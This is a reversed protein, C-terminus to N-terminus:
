RHGIAEHRRTGNARLAEDLARAIALHGAATPHDDLLYYAGPFRTAAEGDVLQLAAFKPLRSTISEERLAAIFGSHLSVVTLSYPRLDVPSRRLVDVFSAAQRKWEVALATDRQTASGRSRIAGQLQVVANLAYKGPFYRLAAADNEVTRQYEEPTLVRLDGAALYTENEYADNDSYQIVLHELRSRDVRELMRLERVTGFSSIGANLIRRGTLRELVAPFAGEQEVGWGMAVSDGLVVVEPAVLSEEDDRVGLSNIRYTNSFERNSFTCTGRRLRYTVREDYEACAPLTQIVQRDFRTYLYRLLPLPVPSAGPFALSFAIVGELLVVTALLVGATQALLSKLARM